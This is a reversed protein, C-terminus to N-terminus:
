RSFTVARPPLTSSTFFSSFESQSADMSTPAQEGNDDTRGAWAKEFGLAHDYAKDFFEQAEKKKGEMASIHFAHLYLFHM